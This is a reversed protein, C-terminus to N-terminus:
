GITVEEGMYYLTGDEARSFCAFYNYMQRIEDPIMAHIKDKTWVHGTMPVGDPTKHLFYEYPGNVYHSATEDTENINYRATWYDIVHPAQGYDKGGELFYADKTGVVYLYPMLVSEDIAAAAEGTYTEEVKLVADTCSAAAFSSPIEVASYTTMICGMSQGTIYCRTSDVPYNEAVYDRVMKIFPVDSRKWTTSAVATNNSRSGTPFVAIFNREEALKNWGSRAAFEEGSGGGGHCAIVMPAKEVKGSKVDEPLYVYFERAVGEFDATVHEMGLEDNSAFYRLANIDGSDQRRVRKLFSHYLYNTFEESYLNEEGVTVMVKSVNAYTIENTKSLYAPYEYIEDAFANSSPYEAACDNAEVWYAILKEVNETKEKAGIWMPIEVESQMVGAAASETVAMKDLVATDYGDLGFVAAGAYLDSCAAVRDMVAAGADEYGVLYFASDQAKYYTRADMFKYAATMYESEDAKWGGEGATMLVVAIGSEDALKKWGSEELFAEADKGAPVGIGVEPQRYPLNEPLYQYVERVTGDTMPLEVRYLGVFGQALPNKQDVTYPYEKVNAPYTKVEAHAMASLMALALSAALLKKM